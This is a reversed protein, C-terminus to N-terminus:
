AAGTLALSAVSFIAFAGGGFAALNLATLLAFKSGPEHIYDEVLVQLGLRAHYFVSFVLLIMPVAAIPQALWGAVTAYSYDPLMVFSAILWTMLILNGAATTRAALWHHAGEHASGLGRVRGITTGNGM